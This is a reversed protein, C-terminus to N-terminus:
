CWWWPLILDGRGVNLYQEYSVIGGSRLQPIPLADLRVQAPQLCQRHLICLNRPFPVGDPQADYLPVDLSLSLVGFCLGLRYPPVNLTNVNYFQM